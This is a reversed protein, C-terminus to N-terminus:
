VYADWNGIGVDADNRTQDEGIIAEVQGVDVVGHAMMDKLMEVDAETDDLVEFFDVLKARFNAVTNLLAEKESPMNMRQAHRELAPLLDDQMADADDSINQFDELFESWSVVDPESREDEVEDEPLKVRPRHHEDTQRREDTQQREDAQRCSLSDAPVM